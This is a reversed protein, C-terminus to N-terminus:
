IIHARTSHSRRYLAGVVTPAQPTTGLIPKGNDYITITAGVEATGTITPKPDNTTQGNQMPGVVDPVNDIVSIIIPANPATIDPAIATAPDSTNHATDAATVSVTQGNAQAPSITVTFQGSTDATGTGITAGGADKVTIIAGADTHGSVATGTTNVTVTDPIAPPTIDPAVASAAASVNPVPAHDSATVVVVEGNLLPPVLPIAFSGGPGNAIGTAIM